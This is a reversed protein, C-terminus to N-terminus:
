ENARPSRDGAKDGATGDHVRSANEKRQNGTNDVLLGDDDDDAASEESEHGLVLVVVVVVAAVVPRSM